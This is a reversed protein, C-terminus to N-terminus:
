RKAPSEALIKWSGDKNEAFFGTANFGAARPHGGGGLLKALQGVPTQKGDPTRLSGRIEGPATEILLLVLAPDHLVNMEGIIGALDESGAGCRVLDEHTILSVSCRGDMTVRLRELAIGLLKLTAVSKHHGVEQVIQRLRGGRRMLDSALDLTATGTNAYQFGGTDTYLGTLLCTAIGPTIRAGLAPIVDALIETTAAADMRHVGSAALRVLDGRAHHDVFGLRGSSALVKLLPDFGTRAIDPADLVIALDIESEEPPVVSVLSGAGPLFGFAAPVGGPLVAYVKKGLDRLAHGLALLSGVADGDPFVHTLLLIRNASHVRGVLEQLSGAYSSVKTQSGHPDM